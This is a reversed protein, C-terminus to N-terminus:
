GNGKEEGRARIAAARTIQDIESEWPFAMVAVQEAALAYAERKSEIALIDSNFPSPASVYRHMRMIEAVCRAREGEVAERIASALEKIFNAARPSLTEERLIDDIVAGRCSTRPKEAGASM